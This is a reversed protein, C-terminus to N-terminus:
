SVRLHRYLLPGALNYFERSVLLCAALTPRDLLSLVNLLVDPHDMTTPFIDFPSSPYSWDKVRNTSSRTGCESVPSVRPSAPYTAQFTTSVCIMPSFKIM